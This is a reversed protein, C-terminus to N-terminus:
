QAAWAGDATQRIWLQSYWYFRGDGAPATCNYRSRGTPLAAVPTATATAGAIVMEMAGGPGYCTLRSADFGQALRLELVPQHNGPGVVPGPRPSIVPLPLTAVKTAFNALDRGYPGSLSFRPLLAFDSRAGTAGSHQGFGTLGLQRVIATVEGTYEGYPYAFLTPRKGLEQEITAGAAEIEEIVRARWATRSENDLRRQLHTHSVTHNGIEAGKGVLSRLEAWTLYGPKGIPETAVFLTYPWNRAELLPAAGSLIDAYADDFTIAVTREPVDGAHLAAALRSAPWVNYNNEALWDLHAAFNHPDTSTSDPTNEAIHHYLLFM